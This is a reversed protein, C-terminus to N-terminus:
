TGINGYCAKNLSIYLQYSLGFTTEIENSNNKALIKGGHGEIISRNFLGLGTGLFSRSTFKDFLRPLNEPGKGTETNKVTVIALDGYGQLFDLYQDVLLGNITDWCNRFYYMAIATM